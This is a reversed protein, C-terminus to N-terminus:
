GLNKNKLYQRTCWGLTLLLIHQFHLTSYGGLQIRTCTYAPSQLRRVLQICLHTFFRKREKWWPLFCHHMKKRSTIESYRTWISRTPFTKLPDFICALRNPPNHSSTPEDWSRQTAIHSYVTCSTMLDHDDEYQASEAFVEARICSSFDSRSFAVGGWYFLNAQITLFNSKLRKIPFKYFAREPSSFNCMKLEIVNAM